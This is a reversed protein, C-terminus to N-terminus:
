RAREEAHPRPRLFRGDGAQNVIGSGDFVLQGRVFTAAVRIHMTRGNFSSWQVASLSKAADFAFRGPEAVVIDADAGNDFSGKRDRLLFHRAPGECLMRVVM